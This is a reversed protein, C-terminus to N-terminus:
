INFLYFLAETSKKGWVVHNKVIRTGSANQKIKQPRECRRNKLPACATTESLRLPLQTKGNFFDAHVAKENAALDMLLGSSGGAQWCVAACGWDGRRRFVCVMLSSDTAFNFVLKIHIFLLLQVM